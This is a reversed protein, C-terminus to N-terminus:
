GMNYNDWIVDYSGVGGSITLDISGFTNQCEINDVSTSLVIPTPENIQITTQTSCGNNDTVTYNFTGATEIFIGTGTYPATGGTANVSVNSTNGNCLIATASSTASLPAPESVTITTSATNGYFDTVTYTYTGTSVTFTGDGTYPATGGNPLVTVQATGGNCLINTSSSSATLPLPETIVLTVVDSCGNADTVTYSYTGAFVTFTGIGTYPASGGSATITVTSSGGSATIITNIGQATLITPETIITSVSVSCGNNDTVNFTYNGSALNTTTPSTVYPGTGGTISLSVSGDSLGNCSVNIQSSISVNL